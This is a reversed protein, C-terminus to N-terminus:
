RGNKGGILDNLRNYLTILWKGAAGAGGGCKLNLIGLSRSDPPPARARAPPSGAVYARIDDNVVSLSKLM